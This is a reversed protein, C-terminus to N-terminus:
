SQYLADDYQDVHQRFFLNMTEDLKDLSGTAPLDIPVVRNSKRDAGAFPRSRSNIRRGNMRSTFQSQSHM